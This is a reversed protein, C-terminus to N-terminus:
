NSDASGQVQVKRNDRIVGQDILLALEAHEAHKLMDPERVKGGHIGSRMQHEPYPAPAGLDAGMRDADPEHIVCVVLEEATFPGHLETLRRCANHVNFGPRHQYEVNGQGTRPLIGELDAEISLPGAPHRQRGPIRLLKPFFLTLPSPYSTLPLLHSTLPSIVPSFGTSLRV